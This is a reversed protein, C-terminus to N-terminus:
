RRHDPPRRCLVAYILAVALACLAHALAGELALIFATAAHAAALAAHAMRDRDFASLAHIARALSSKLAPILATTYVVAAQSLNHRDLM